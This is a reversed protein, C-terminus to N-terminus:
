ILRTYIEIYMESTYKDYESSLVGDYIDHSIAIEYNKGNKDVAKYVTYIYRGSYSKFIEYKNWNIILDKPKVEYEEDGLYEEIDDIHYQKEDLIFYGKGIIYALRDIDLYEWDVEEDEGDDDKEYTIEQKYVSIQCHEKDYSSLSNWSQKASLNAEELTEFPGDDFHNDQDDQQETYYGIKKYM